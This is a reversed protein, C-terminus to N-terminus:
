SYYTFCLRHFFLTKLSFKSTHREYFVPIKTPAASFLSVFSFKATHRGCLFLIPNHTRLIFTIPSIKPWTADLCFRFKPTLFLFISSFRDVSLRFSIHPLFCFTLLNLLLSLTSLMVTRDCVPISLTTEVAPPPSSIAKAPSIWSWTTNPFDRNRKYGHYRYFRRRLRASTSKRMIVSPLFTPSKRNNTDFSCWTYCDLM